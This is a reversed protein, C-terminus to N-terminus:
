MSILCGSVQVQYGILLSADGKLDMSSKRIQHNCLELGIAHNAISSLRMGSRLVSFYCISPDKKEDLAFGVASTQIGPIRSCSM